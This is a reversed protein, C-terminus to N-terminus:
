SDFGFFQPMKFLIKDMDTESVGYQGFNRSQKLSTNLDRDPYDSGYFIRNFKM